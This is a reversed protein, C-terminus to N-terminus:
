LCDQKTRLRRKGYFTRYCVCFICVFVIYTATVHVLQHIKNTTLRVQIFVNLPDEWVSGPVEFTVTLITQLNCSCILCFM